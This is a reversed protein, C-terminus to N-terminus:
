PQITGNVAAVREDMLSRWLPPWLAIIGMVPLSRPLIPMRDEEIRLNPYPRTPNLHHDSHRPVNLMMAASFVQPANWSHQAGVPELKGNALKRRQLGYHQIYDSALHQLTAYLSVAILSAVGPWGALLFAVLVTLATGVAYWM